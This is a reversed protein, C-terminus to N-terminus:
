KKDTKGKDSKDSGSGLQRANSSGSSSSSSSSSSSIRKDLQQQMVDQIAKIDASNSKNEFISGIEKLNGKVAQGIIKDMKLLNEPTRAEVPAKADKLGQKLDHLGKLVQPDTYGAQIFPRSEQMINKAEAQVTPHTPPLKRDPNEKVIMNAIANISNQNNVEREMMATEVMVREPSKGTVQQTTILKDVMEISTIGRNIYPEAEQLRAKANKDDLGHEEKMYKINNENNVYANLNGKKAADINKNRNDYGAKWEQPSNELYFSDRVENLAGWSNNIGQKIEPNIELQSPLSGLQQLRDFLKNHSEGSEAKGLAKELAQAIISGSEVTSGNTDKDVNNNTTDINNSATDVKNNATDIQSSNTNISSNSANMNNNPANLNVSAASLNISSYSNQTNAAEKAKAQELSDIKSQIEGEKNAYNEMDNDNMVGRDILGDAEDQLGKKQGRLYNINDDYSGEPLPMDFGFGNDGVNGELGEGLNGGMNDGLSKGMEGLGNGGGKGLSGAADGIGKMGGNKGMLGGLKGAAAGGGGKALMGAAGGTYISAVAVAATKVTEKVFKEIAKLTKIGSESSGQKAISVENFGFLNYFFKEAPRILSLCILIYVYVGYSDPGVTGIISIIDPEFQQTNQGVLGM